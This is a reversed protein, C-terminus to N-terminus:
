YDDDQPAPEISIVSLHEASIEGYSDLYLCVRNQFRYFYGWNLYVYGFDCCSSMEYEINGEFRVTVLDDAGNCMRFKLEIFDVEHNINVCRLESDHFSGTKKNIKDYGDILDRLDDALEGSEAKEEVESLYQAFAERKQLSIELQNLDANFKIGNEKLDRFASVANRLYVLYEYKQWSTSNACELNSYAYALNNHSDKLLWGVVEMPEKSYLPYDYGQPHRKRQMIANYLAIGLNTLEQDAEKGSVKKKRSKFFVSPYKSKPRRGFSDKIYNGWVTNLRSEQEETLLLGSHGGRWDFDPIAIALQQSTLIPAADPSVMCLPKFDVYYTERGKGSWDTDRYAKSTVKGEAVIGTAGYGVKLLYVIDGKQIKEHDWVSWNMDHDGGSLAINMEALFDLMKYSSIAPNWKLIYTAM